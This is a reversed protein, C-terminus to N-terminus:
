KLYAGQFILQVGSLQANTYSLGTQSSFLALASQFPPLHFMTPVSGFTLHCGAYLPAGNVFPLGGITAPAGSSNAPLAVRGWITVMPGTEWYYGAATTFVLGAGSADNPTWPVYPGLADIQNYLEQKWANNLITGTTGSGDDDIMPTRIIAM